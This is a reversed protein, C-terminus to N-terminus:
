EQLVAGSLGFRALAKRRRAGRLVLFLGLVALGVCALQAPTLGLTRPEAGPLDYNRLFDGAFRAPAYLLALVGVATGPPPARRGLWVVAPVLVLGTYLLEYLGLDHRAGGDFRIALVFDSPIGIHDHVLTCGLRGFVWGVVLAQALLDALPWAPRRRWRCFALLGLAAGVFGGFSSMGNWFRLLQAPGLSAEGPRYVFLVALHSLAFGSVLTAAIAGNVEAEPIRLARARAQAFVIGAAVGVVVLTGFVSLTVGAGLPIERLEFYPLM